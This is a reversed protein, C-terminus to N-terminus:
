CFRQYVCESYSTNGMKSVIKDIKQFGQKEYFRQAITNKELAIVLVPILNEQKLKGVSEDLLKQGVGQNQYDKSVYLAYIEGQGFQLHRSIGYDCFGIIKENHSAVFSYKQPQVMWQLRGRLREEFSINDLYSQDIIGQYAQKWVTISIHTIDEFDDSTAPRVVITM